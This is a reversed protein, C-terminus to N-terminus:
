FVLGRGVWPGKRLLLLVLLLLLLLGVRVSGIRVM